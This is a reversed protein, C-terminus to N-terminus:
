FSELNLWSDIVESWYAWFHYIVDVLLAIYRYIKTWVVLLRGNWVKFQLNVYGNVNYVHDHVM